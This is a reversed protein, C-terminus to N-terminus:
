ESQACVGVHMFAVLVHLVRWVSVGAMALVASAALVSCCCLSFCCVLVVLSFMRKGGSNCYPFKASFLVTDM